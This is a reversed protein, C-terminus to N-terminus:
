PIPELEAESFLITEVKKLDEENDPVLFYRGGVVSHVAPLAIGVIGMALSNEYVPRAVQVRKNALTM